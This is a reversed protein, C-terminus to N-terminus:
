NGTIPGPIFTMRLLVSGSPLKSDSSISFNTTGFIEPIQNKLKISFGIATVNGDTSQETPGFGGILQAYLVESNVPYKQLAEFAHIDARIRAADFTAYTQSAGRQFQPGVNVTAAKADQPTQPLKTYQPVFSITALFLVMLALFLDAYMWGAQESADETFESEILDDHAM